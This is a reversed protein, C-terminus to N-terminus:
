QWSWRLAEVSASFGVVFYDGVAEQGNQNGAPLFQSSTTETRRIQVFNAYARLWKNLRQSLGFGWSILQANVGNGNLEYFGGGATGTLRPTFDYLIHGRVSRLTGATGFSSTLEPEEGGYIKLRARPLDYELLGIGGPNVSQRNSGQTYSIIVGVNGSISFNRLPQWGARLFPWHAQEGPRGPQSFMFDYFRYGPGLYFRDSFHYETVTGISQGYSTDNTSSSNNGNNWFTTQNVTVETSWHRSWDHSLEANFRNITAQDNALLLQAAISNFQPAQDSTIVGVFTPSDRYFLENLRLKTTPSINEDDTASAFQAEGARDFQTQHTFLQAFTDYHLAAYRAESTYDLYFGAAMTGAFDGVQNSTRLPVNDSYFGSLLAEPYLRFLDQAHGAAPAAFIILAALLPPVLHKRTRMIM